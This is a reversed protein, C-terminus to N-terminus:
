IMVYSEKGMLFHMKAQRFDSLQKFLMDIVEEKTENTISSITNFYEYITKENFNTKNRRIGKVKTAM